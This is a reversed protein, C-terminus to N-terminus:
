KEYEINMYDDMIEEDEINQSYEHNSEPLNVEDSDFIERDVNENIKEDVFSYAAPVDGSEESLEIESKSTEADGTGADSSNCASCMLIMLAAASLTLKKMIM